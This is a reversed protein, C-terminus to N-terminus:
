ALSERLWSLVQAIEKRLFLQSAAYYSSIGLIFLVTLTAGKSLAPSLTLAGVYITCLMLLSCFFPKWLKKILDSVKLDILTFPIRFCPYTGILTAVLYSLAVGVIGWRLGVVFCVVTFLGTGIGWRFMWDTRNQVLYIAGTTAEISQLLGVPSFIILLLSVVRWKEGFFVVVFYDSVGMMGLMMPFTILAIIGAVDLYASRFKNNDERIRSYVPFMVRSIVATVNQLPYLMIRYALSYYGLEQAGLFKGILLYDANRVVYNTINFGSLNLSFRAVKRIETFDFLLAPHWSSFFLFLLITSVLATSLAQFVLSWVGAGSFALTIGVVAGFLTAAIEVKALKTFELKRELLAQQTIGISSILFSASLLKLVFTLRMENYFSAVMPAFLYVVLTVVTGFVVNVWFISSLLKESLDHRQIIASSTGLDRFINLFGIVVMAMSMLGFDSPSLTKALIITTLIQLAQRAIQSISSWKVSLIASSLLAM